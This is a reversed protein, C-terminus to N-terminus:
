KGGTAGRRRQADPPPANTKPGPATWQTAAGGNGGSPSAGAARASAGLGASQIVNSYKSVLKAANPDTRGLVILDSIVRDIFSFMAESQQLQQEYVGVRNKLVINERLVYVLVCALVAMTVLVLLIVVKRIFEVNKGLTEVQKTLDANVDSTESM